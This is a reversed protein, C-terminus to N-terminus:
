YLFAYSIAFSFLGFLAAGTLAAGQPLPINRWRTLGFLLICAIM